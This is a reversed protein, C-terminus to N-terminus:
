DFTQLATFSVNGWLTYINKILMVLRTSRAMDTQGDTEVCVIKQPKFSYPQFKGLLRKDKAPLIYTPVLRIPYSYRLAGMPIVPIKKKIIDKTNKLMYGGVSPVLM